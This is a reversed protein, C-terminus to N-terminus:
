AAVAYTFTLTLAAISLSLAEVGGFGFVPAFSQGATLLFTRESTIQSVYVPDDNGAGSALSAGKGISVDSTADEHNLDGRVSIGASYQLNPAVTAISLSAAVRATVIIEQSGEYTVILGEPDFVFGEPLGGLPMEDFDDTVIAELFNEDSGTLTVTNNPTTASLGGMGLAGGGTGNKALPGSPGRRLFPREPDGSSM